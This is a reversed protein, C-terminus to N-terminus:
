PFGELLFLGSNEPIKGVKTLATKFFDPFHGEKSEGGGTRSFKKEIPLSGKANLSASGTILSAIVLPLTMMKILRMFLEGPYGIYSITAKDLDLRRLSLGLTIGLSSIHISFKRSVALTPLLSLLARDSM